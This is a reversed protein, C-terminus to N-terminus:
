WRTTWATDRGAPLFPMDDRGVRQGAPIGAPDDPPPGNRIRLPRPSMPPTKLYSMRVVHPSARHNQEPRGFGGSGTRFPGGEAGGNM